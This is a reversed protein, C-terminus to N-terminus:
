EPIEDWRAHLTFNAKEKLVRGAEYLVGDDTEWGAFIYGKRVPNTPVSLRGNYSGPLSTTKNESETKIKGFSVEAESALKCKFSTEENTKGQFEITIQEGARLSFPNNSVFKDDVESFGIFDNGVRCYGYPQSDTEITIVQDILSTYQLKVSNVGHLAVDTKQNLPFDIAEADLYNWQARFTKSGEVLYDHDYINAWDSDWGAFQKESTNELIPFEIPDSEKTFDNYSEVTSSGNRFSVNYPFNGLGADFEISFHHIEEAWRAEITVNSLHESCVFTNNVLEEGDVFYGVFDYGERIEPDPLVIDDTDVNFSTKLGTTDELGEYSIRYTNYTLKGFFVLDSEVNKAVSVSTTCEYDTYWTISYGTGQDFKPLSLNDGYPVVTKLASNEYLVPVGDRFVYYEINAKQRVIQNYVATYVQAGRVTSVGMSGDEAQWGVFEYLYDDTKARTPDAKTFEPTVGYEVNTSQLVQGNWNVFRVNYQRKTAEFVATYTAPGTVEKVGMSGDEAQWDVFTYKYEDTQDKRASMKPTTGYAYTDPGTKPNGKGDKQTQWTPVGDVIWTIEYRRLVEKFQATITRDKYVRGAHTTDNDWGIFVYDYQDTSPKTPKEGDYKTWEGIVIHKDVELVTGDYNVWTVTPMASCGSLSTAGLVLAPLIVLKKIKM